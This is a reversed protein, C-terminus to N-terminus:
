YSTFIKLEDFNRMYNLVFLAHNDLKRNTSIPYREQKVRRNKVRTLPTVMTLLDSKQLFNRHIDLPCKKKGNILASHM